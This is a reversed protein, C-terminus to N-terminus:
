QRVKTQTSQKKKRRVKQVVILIGGLISICIGSWRILSAIHAHFAYDAIMAPTPDQYPIGAFLVDYLFGVFFLMLGLAVLVFPWLKPM